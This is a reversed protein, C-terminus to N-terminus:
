KSWFMKVTRETQVAPVANQTAATAIVDSNVFVGSDATIAAAWPTAGNCTVSIATGGVVHLSLRRQKQEQSVTLALNVVHGSECTVTGTIYAAGTIRDITGSGNIALASASTPPSVVGGLELAGMDCGAGQPRTVGRQDMGNVPDAVCAAYSAKDIAPSDGLLAHTRTPGGNDALLPRGFGDLVFRADVDVFNTGGAPLDNSASTGILSHSAGLEVYQHRDPTDASVHRIDPGSALASASNNAVISNLLTAIAPADFAGFNTIGGGTGAGNAAVTSHILHLTGHHNYVGGGSSSGSNGSVTSNVLTVAAQQMHIGGGAFTIEGGDPNIGNNAITSNVITLSGGFQRIGGGWLETWNHEITSNRIVLDGSSRIGGGGASGVELGDRITLNELTVQAASVNFVRSAQNGSITIGGAPGMIVISRTLLLQGQALEITGGALGPAFAINHGDGALEIMERLTGGSGDDLLSTVVYTQSSSTVNAAPGDPGVTEICGGLTLVAVITVALRRM